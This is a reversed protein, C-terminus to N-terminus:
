QAVEWGLHHLGDAGKAHGVQLGGRLGAALMKQVGVQGVDFGLGLGQLQNALGKVQGGVEAFVKIGQVVAQGGGQGASALLGAKDHHEVLQGDGGFKVFGHALLQEIAKLIRGIEPSLLAHRKPTKIREGILRGCCITVGKRHRPFTAWRPIQLLSKLRSPGSRQM